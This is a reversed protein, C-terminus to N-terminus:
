AGDQDAGGGVLLEVCAVVSQYVLLEKSCEAFSVSELSVM